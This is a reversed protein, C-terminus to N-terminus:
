YESYFIEMKKYNNKYDEKTKFVEFILDGECYTFVSNLYKNVFVKRYGYSFEYVKKFGSERLERYLDFDEELIFSKYTIKDKNESVKEFSKLLNLLNEM